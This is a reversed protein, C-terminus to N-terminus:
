FLCSSGRPLLKFGQAQIASFHVFFDEGTGQALFGFGKSDNFWKVKGKAM